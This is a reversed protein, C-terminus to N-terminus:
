NRKTLKGEEFQMVPYDFMNVLAEDHTAILVTAGQKSLEEFLRMFRKSHEIDLNASPEDALIIDPNNIVARAIAVRQKQGGSLFPTKEYKVEQLGVWDLLEEVKDKIESKKANLVRLPLAVNDWVNLHEPLYFDQHIVGIRQRLAPLEDHKLATISQGFLELKGASVPLTLSLINLLSSKGIGNPGMLFQFSSKEMTLDVGKLIENGGPYTLHIDECLIM